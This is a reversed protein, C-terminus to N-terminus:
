TLTSFWALASSSLGYSVSLRNLLIAHDVTDFAASVDLLALLAVEGRDVASYVDSLVRYVASETSHFRRFGSQLKPLLNNEALYTSLQLFILKEVIKSMFSLNSIPRYSKLEDPDLGVKKLVPTIVADMQSSPLGEQVSANCMCTMFPLLVDLFQKVVFTPIPDLQCSKSPSGRIIREVTELSCTAFSGFRSTTPTYDPPPAGATSTRVDNVKQDLFSHFDSASFPPAM